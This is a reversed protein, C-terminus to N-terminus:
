KQIFWYLILTLSNEMVKLSGGWKVKYQITIIHHTWLTNKLKDAIESFNKETNEKGDSWVTEESVVKVEIKSTRAKAPILTVKTKPFAQELVNQLRGAAKTFGWSTCHEINIRKSMIFNDILLNFNTKM